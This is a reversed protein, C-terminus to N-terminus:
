AAALKVRVKTGTAEAFRILTKTSPLSRGSELRAIVSQTTGMRFAVEEQSLGARQRAKVLEAAIEFEPALSDYEAKFAPDRMWERKLDEFQITM